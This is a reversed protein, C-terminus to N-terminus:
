ETIKRHGTPDNENLNSEAFPFVLGVHESSNQKKKYKIELGAKGRACKGEVKM